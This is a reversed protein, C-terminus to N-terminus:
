KIIAASILQEFVLILLCFDSKRESIVNFFCEKFGTNRDYSDELKHQNAKTQTKKLQSLSFSDTFCLMYPFTKNKETHNRSINFSMGLLSPIGMESGLCGFFEVCIKVQLLFIDYIGCVCILINIKRSSVKHM